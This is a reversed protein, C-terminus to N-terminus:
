PLTRALDLAEAVGDHEVDAVVYKAVALADSHANGMAVPHGAVELASVDNQGDGVMMVQDLTLELIAALAVVGSAKSVSADTVSVFHFGPIIPSTASSAVCGEPVLTCARDVDADTVIYQMRLPVGRLDDFPRRVFPVGLLAAHSVAVSAADDVTYDTDAYVEFVWGQDAAIAEGAAVAGTPLPTSRTEGSATHMISAGTQFMHWGDPDLRTAWEWASGLGLRATCIALHIGDARARAAAAWVGATPSGSHGVLTGDVDLCVLGLPVADGYHGFHGSSIPASSAAAVASAGIERVFGRV